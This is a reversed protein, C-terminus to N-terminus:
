GLLIPYEILRRSLCRSIVLAWWTRIVFGRQASFELKTTPSEKRFLLKYELLTSTAINLVSGFHALVSLSRQIPERLITATRYQEPVMDAMAATFHGVLVRHFPLHSYESLIASGTLYWGNSLSKLYYEGPYVQRSGFEDELMWRLSTGATKPIHMVVTRNYTLCSLSTLIRVM